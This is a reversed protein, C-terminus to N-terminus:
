VKKWKVGQPTDELVIGKEKLLDRIRDAEAFNKEKRAAQRAAILDEVEQELSDEKKVYLLGLVDTIERVMKLCQQALLKGPKNEPAVAANVARVLEFLVGIADATNFDDDM